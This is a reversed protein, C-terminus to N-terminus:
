KSNGKKTANAEELTKIREHANALDQSLAFVVGWLEIGSSMSLNGGTISLNGNEYPYHFTQKDLDYYIPVVPPLYRPFAQQISM